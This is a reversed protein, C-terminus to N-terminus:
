AVKGQIVSVGASLGVAAVIGFYRIGFGLQWREVLRILIISRFLIWLQIGRQQNHPNHQEAGIM